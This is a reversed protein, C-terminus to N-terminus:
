DKSARLKLFAGPDSWVSDIDQIPGSQWDDKTIRVKYKKALSKWVRQSSTTQESDADLTIGQDILWSYFAIGYGKNQYIPNIWIHGMKYHDRGLDIASLRASGVSTGRQDVFQFRPHDAMGRPWDDCHISWDKIEGVKDPLGERAWKELRKLNDADTGANDPEITRIEDLVSEKLRTGDPGYWDDGANVTDKAKTFHQSNKYILPPCGDPGLINGFKASQRQTEGPQVDVTTNINPIIKGEENIDIKNSNLMMFDYFERWEVTADCAERIASLASM